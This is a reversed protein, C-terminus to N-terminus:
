VDTTRRYNKLIRKIIIDDLKSIDELESVESTIEQPLKYIPQIHIRKKKKPSAITRNEGNVLLVELDNEKYILYIQGKDHGAKSKALAIKM